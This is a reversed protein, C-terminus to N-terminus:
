VVSVDRREADLKEGPRRGPHRREPKMTAGCAPCAVPADEEPRGFISWRVEGCEECRMGFM